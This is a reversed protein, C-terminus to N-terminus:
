PMWLVRPMTQSSGEDIDAMWEPHRGQAKTVYPNSLNSGKNRGPPCGGSRHEAESRNRDICSMALLEKEIQAYRSEAGMLAHSAYAVPQGEQILAAGLGDQSADCQITVARKLDYHPPPPVLTQTLKEKIKKLSLQHNALWDWKVDKHELQRLIECDHSLCPMFKALYNVMGLFRKLGTIDTPAEMESIASVKKPDIAVGQNTLLHSMYPVSKKRLQVKKRNLTLNKQQLRELLKRLHEDHSEMAEANIEGFGVILFDDAIVEVGSLGEIIENVMRQWVEPASNIGFPM